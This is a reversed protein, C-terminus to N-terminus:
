EEKLTLRRKLKRKEREIELVRGGAFAMRQYDKYEQLSEPIGNWYKEFENKM